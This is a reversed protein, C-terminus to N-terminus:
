KGDTHNRHLPQFGETNSPNIQRKMEEMQRHVSLSDLSPSYGPAPINLQRKPANLEINASDLGEVIKAGYSWHRSPEEIARSPKVREFLQPVRRVASACNRLAGSGILFIAAYCYLANKM